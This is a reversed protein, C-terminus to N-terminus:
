EADIVPEAKAIQANVLSALTKWPNREADSGLCGAAHKFGHLAMSAIQPRGCCRCRLYDGDLEWRESFECLAPRTTQSGPDPMM